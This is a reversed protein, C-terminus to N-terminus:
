SVAGVTGDWFPGDVVDVSKGTGFLPCATARATVNDNTPTNSIAPIANKVTRMRRALDSCSLISLSASVERLLDM